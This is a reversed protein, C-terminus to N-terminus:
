RVSIRWVARLELTRRAVCAPLPTAATVRACHTTQCTVSSTFRCLNGCCTDNTCANNDNCLAAIDQASKSSTICGVSNDCSAVLCKDATSCVAPSSICGQAMNPDCSDMTCATSSCVPSFAAYTSLFTDRAPAGIVFEAQVGTALCLFDSCDRAPSAPGFCSFGLPATANLQCQPELCPQAGFSVGVCPDTYLCSGTAVSCQGINCADVSDCNIAPSSLCSGGVWTWISCFDNAPCAIPRTECYTGNVAVEANCANVDLVTPDSCLKICVIPACPTGTGCTGASCQACAAPVPAIPPNVCLGDTVNCIDDTCSNGDSCRATQEAATLVVLECRSNLRSCVPKQCPNGEPCTPVQAVCEGMSPTTANNVCIYNLCFDGVQCVGQKPSVHCYHPGRELASLCDTKQAGDAITNCGSVSNICSTQTCFTDPFTSQCPVGVNCACALSPDDVYVCGVVPDCSSTQCVAPPCLQNLEFVTLIRLM